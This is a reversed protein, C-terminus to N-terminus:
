LFNQFFFDLGLFNVISVFVYAVSLGVKGVALVLWGVLYVFLFVSAFISVIGGGVAFRFCVLILM